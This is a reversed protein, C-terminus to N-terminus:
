IQQEKSFKDASQLSYDYFLKRFLLLDQSMFDIHSQLHDEEIVVAVHGHHLLRLFALGVGFSVEINHGKCPEDVM